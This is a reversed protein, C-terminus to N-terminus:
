GAHLAMWGAPLTPAAVASFLPGRVAPAIPGALMPLAVADLYAAISHTAHAGGHASDLSRLSATMSRVIGLQATGAQSTDTDPIAAGMLARSQLNIRRRVGN